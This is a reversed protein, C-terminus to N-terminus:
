DCTGCDLTFASMVLRREHRQHAVFRNMWDRLDASIDHALNEFAPHSRLSQRLLRLKDYLLRQEAYLAKVQDYWNPFRDLVESLYGGDERLAFDKPVTDILADLVASLWRHTTADRPEELLDRLDGLLIYEFATCQALREPASKLKRAM